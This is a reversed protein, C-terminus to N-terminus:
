SSAFLALQGHLQKPYPKSKPLHRRDRPRLAWAYKFNGDHALPRTLKPLWLALWAAGDDGDRLPAAGHLELMEASYRWGKSGTRIKSLTRGPIVTGDPLLRKREAKSRKVYVANHAQYITGVHGPFVVKGALDTRLVPDSFSIVGTYGRKRLAAFCQGLFWTEGNGEVQDLLVFRGLEIGSVRGDPLVDLARPNQPVSFVAVGVLQEGRYLGFRVKAAVYSGSYHHELIFQKPTNDDDIEAVEYARPDILEAAPRVSVQRARWRQVSTVHM